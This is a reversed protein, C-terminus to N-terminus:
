RTPLAGRGPCRPTAPWLDRSARAGSRSHTGSTAPPERAGGDPPFRPSRSCCWGAPRTGPWRVGTPRCRTMVAPRAGRCVGGATVFEHVAAVPSQRSGPPPLEQSWTRHGRECGTVARASFRRPKRRRSITVASPAPALWPSIVRTRCSARAMPPLGAPWPRKRTRHRGRFRSTGTSALRSRWRRRARHSSRIRGWPDKGQAPWRAVAILRSSARAGPQGGCVMGAVPFSVTLARPVGGVRRSLRAM